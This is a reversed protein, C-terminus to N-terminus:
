ADLVSDHRSALWQEVDRFVSWYQQDYAEVLQFTWMGPVVDRGVLTQEIQDAAEGHGAERLLRVGEGLTLDATGSLRHFGYLFGRAQEAVELAESVKGLAAVTADSMGEPRPHEVTREPHKASGHRDLPSSGRPSSDM